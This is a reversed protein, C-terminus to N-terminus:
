FVTWWYDFKKRYGGGKLSFDNKSNRIKRNTERKALKRSGTLYFQTVYKNGTERCEKEYVFYVGQDALRKKKRKARQKRAYRNLRKRNKREVENIESEINDLLEELDQEQMEYYADESEKSDNTILGSGFDFPESQLDRYAKVEALDGKLEEKNINKYLHEFSM